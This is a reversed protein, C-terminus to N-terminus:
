KKFFGSLGFLLSVLGMLILTIVISLWWGAQMDALPLWKVNEGYFGSVITPITLVISYVTLIKMTWNLDRNSLNGYAESVSNIVAMALEAMHEAQDVEVRVDDIHELENKTMGSKFDQKFADLMIHNNALSNQIYIMQTQLRLLDNMQKTTRKQHGFQAQIIRRRRNIETIQEVYRTMLSYLGTMLFDAITIEDDSVRKQRNKPSLLVAQIYDTVNQSFTYLKNHAILIGVPRTEVSDQHYSIVDIVMLSEDADTDYEMRVSENNDVAYGIIENTLHHDKILTQNDQPTMNSIHYWTFNKFQKVKEIM